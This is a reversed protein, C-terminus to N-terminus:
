PQLYPGATRETRNNNIITWQQVVDTTWPHDVTPGRISPKTLEPRVATTTCSVYPRYGVSQGVAPTCRDTNILEPRWPKTYWPDATPVLWREWTITYWANATTPRHPESPQLYPDM